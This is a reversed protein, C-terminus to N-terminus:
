FSCFTQNSAFWLLALVCVSVLSTHSAAEGMPKVGLFEGCGKPIGRVRSGFLGPAIKWGLNWDTSHWLEWLTWPGQSLGPSRPSCLWPNGGLGRPIGAAESCPWIGWSLLKSYFWAAFIDGIRIIELSHVTGSHCRPLATGPNPSMRSCFSYCCGTVGKDWCHWWPINGCCLWSIGVFVVVPIGHALPFLGAPVGQFFGLFVGCGCKWCCWPPPNLFKSAVEGCSWM